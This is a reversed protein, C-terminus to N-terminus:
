HKIYNIFSIYHFPKGLDETIETLYLDGCSRANSSILLSNCDSNFKDYSVAIMLDHEKCIYNQANEVRITDKNYILWLSLSDFIKLEINKSYVITDSSFCFVAKFNETKIGSYINRYGLSNDTEEVTTYFNISVKNENEESSYPILSVLVTYFVLAKM